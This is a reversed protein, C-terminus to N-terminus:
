HVFTKILQRLDYIWWINHGQTVISWHNGVPTGHCGLTCKVISLPSVLFSM